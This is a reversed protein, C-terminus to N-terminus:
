PWARAQLRGPSPWRLAVLQQKEVPSRGRDCKLWLSSVDTGGQPLDKKKREKKKVSPSEHQWAYLSFVRRLQKQECSKRVESM